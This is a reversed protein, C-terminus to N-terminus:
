LNWVPVIHVYTYDPWFIIEVLESRGVHVIPCQIQKRSRSFLTEIKINYCYLAWSNSDDDDDSARASVMGTGSSSYLPPPPPPSLPM